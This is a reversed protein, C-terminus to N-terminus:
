RLMGPPLLYSFYPLVAAVVAVLSALAGGIVLTKSAGSAGDASSGPGDVEAARQAAAAVATYKGGNTAYPKGKTCAGYANRVEHVVTVYADETSLAKPSAIKQGAADLKNKLRTSEEKAKDVTVKTKLDTSNFVGRSNYRDYLDWEAQTLEISCSKDAGVTSTLAAAQPATATLPIAIGAAAVIAILARYPRSGCSLNSLSFVSM